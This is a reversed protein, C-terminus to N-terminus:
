RGNLENSSEGQRDPFFLIGENHQIIILSSDLFLNTIKLELIVLVVVL